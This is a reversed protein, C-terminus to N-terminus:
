PRDVGQIGFRKEALEAPSPSADHCRFRRWRVQLPEPEKLRVSWGAAIGEGALNFACACPPIPCIPIAQACRPCYRFRSQQNETALLRRLTASRGSAIRLGVPFSDETLPQPM